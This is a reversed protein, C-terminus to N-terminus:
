KEQRGTEPCAKLFESLVLWTRSGVVGDPSLEKASQFEKVADKTKTGIQGDIEGDYFGANKLATQIEKGTPMRISVKELEAIKEKLVLNENQKQKLELELARVRNEAKSLNGRDSNEQTVSETVACGCIFVVSLIFAIMKGRM